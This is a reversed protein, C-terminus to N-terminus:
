LLKISGQIGRSTGAHLAAPVKLEFSTANAANSHLQTAARRSWLPLQADRDDEQTSANLHRV